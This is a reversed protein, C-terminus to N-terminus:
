ERELRIFSLSDLAGVLLHLVGIGSVAGRSYPNLCFARLLPLRTVFYNNEWFPSWPVLLLFIGVEFLYFLYVLARLRDKMDSLAPRTITMPRRRDGGEFRAATTMM